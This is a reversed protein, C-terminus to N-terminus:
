RPIGFEDYGLIEDASRSDRVPLANIRACLADIRERNIPQSNKQIQAELAHIVAASLTTGMRRSLLDALEHAVPNKIYLTRRKKV